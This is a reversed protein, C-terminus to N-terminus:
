VPQREAYVIAIFNIFSHSYKKLYDATTPLKLCPVSYIKLIFCINHFSNFLVFVHPRMYTHQCYNKSKKKKCSKRKNNRKCWSIRMIWVWRIGGFSYRSIEAIIRM